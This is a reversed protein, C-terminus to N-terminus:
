RQSSCGSLYFNNQLFFVRLNKYVQPKKKKRGERMYKALMSKVLGLHGAQSGFCWKDMELNVVMKQGKKTERLANFEVILHM